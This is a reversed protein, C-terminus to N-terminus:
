KRQYMYIFYVISTTIIESIIAPLSIFGFMIDFDFFWFRWIILSLVFSVIFHLIILLIIKFKNRIVNRATYLLIIMGTLFVVAGLYLNLM